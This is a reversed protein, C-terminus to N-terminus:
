PQLYLTLFNLSKTLFNLKEHLLFPIKDKTIRSNNVNSHTTDFRDVGSGNILFNQRTRVPNFSIQNSNLVKFDQYKINKINIYVITQYTQM